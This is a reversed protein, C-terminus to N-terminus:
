TRKKSRREDIILASQMGDEEKKPVIKTQAVDNVTAHIAGIEKEQIQVNMKVLADV